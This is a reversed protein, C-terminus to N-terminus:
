AGITGWNILTENSLGSLNHPFWFCIAVCINQANKYLTFMWVAYWFYPFIPFYLIQKKKKENKHAGVQKNFYM